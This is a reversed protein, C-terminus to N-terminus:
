HLGLRCMEPTTLQLRRLSIILIDKTSKQLTDDSARISPTCMEAMWEPLAM